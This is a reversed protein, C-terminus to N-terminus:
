ISPGPLPGGGPTGGGVPPTPGTASGGTAAATAAAAVGIERRRQQFMADSRFSEIAERVDTTKTTGDPAQYTIKQGLVRHALVESNEPAVSAMADYTGAITALSHATTQHDGTAVDKRLRKLMVPSFAEVAQKRAGAIYAGGQGDISENVIKETAEQSSVGGNYQENMTGLQSGYGGGALDFRRAQTAGSRMAALMTAARNRDDGAVENILDHMEGAGGIWNGNADQRRKFATGTAPLAMAAATEFSENSMSRRAMRMAGVAENISRDDYIQRGAGDKINRLYDRARAENGGSKLAAQLYDDNASIHKMFENKELGERAEDLTNRSIANRSREGWKLPNLGGDTAIAHRRETAANYRRAAWSNGRFRNGSREAEKNKQIQEGRYKRQRDFLGRSSDNVIGGIQAVVGGALRFMFAMMFYPAFYAILSIFQYLLNDSVSAVSSFAHGASITAMMIPLMLLLTLLTKSWLSWVKQTNPLIYAVFAVPALIILIQLGIDRIVIVVFAILIALFGTFALSLLGGLGLNVAMKGLGGIVIWGFFEAWNTYPQGVNEFPMFIINRIGVGLANIFGILVDMIPWSINIAIIAIIFRPLTKRLSYADLIEFGLMHSIVIVLGVVVVLGLAIFRFSNWATKYAKASKAHEPNSSQTNFFSDRNFVLSDTIWEDLKEIFGLAIDVAPCLAWTLPNLTTNCSEDISSAAPTKAAHATSLSSPMFSYLLTFSIFFLSVWSTIKIRLQM